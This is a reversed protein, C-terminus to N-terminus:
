NVHLVHILLDQCVKEGLQTADCLCSLWLLKLSRLLVVCAAGLAFPM